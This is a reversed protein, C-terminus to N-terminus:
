GSQRRWRQNPGGNWPWQIVAAGDASNLGAVDLVKGSHQVTFRFTGDNLNEMNWRQNKGGNWPWQIIGAGDATSNGAVDLV